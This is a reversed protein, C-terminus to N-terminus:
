GVGRCGERGRGPMATLEDGAVAIDELRPRLECFFDRVSDARVSDHEVDFDTAHLRVAAAM